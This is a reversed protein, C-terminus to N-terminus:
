YHPNTPDRAACPAEGLWDSRMAALGIEDAPVETNSATIHQSRHQHQERTRGADNWGNSAWAAANTQVQQAQAAPQQAAQAQMFALLQQFQSNSEARSKQLDAQLNAMHDCIATFQAVIDSRFTEVQDQMNRHKEDFEANGDQRKNELLQMREAFANRVPTPKPLVAAACQSPPHHCMASDAGM